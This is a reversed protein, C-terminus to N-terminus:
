KAFKRFFLKGQKKYPVLDFGYVMSQFHRYDNMKKEMDRLFDRVYVSSPEFYTKIIHGLIYKQDFSKVDYPTDKFACEALAAFEVKGDKIFYDSVFKDVEPRWNMNLINPHNMLIETLITSPTHAMTNIHLASPTQQPYTIPLIDIPIKMKQHHPGLGKECKTIM